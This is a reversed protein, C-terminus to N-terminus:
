APPKPPEPFVAQLTDLLLRVKHPEDFPLQPILAISSQLMNSRAEAPLAGTKELHAMLAITLALSANAADPPTLSIDGIM